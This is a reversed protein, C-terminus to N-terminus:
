LVQGFKESVAVAANFNVGSKSTIQFDALKRMMAYCDRWNDQVTLSIYLEAKINKEENDSAKNKRQSGTLVQNSHSSFAM